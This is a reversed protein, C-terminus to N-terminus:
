IFMTLGRVVLRNLLPMLPHSQLAEAMATNEGRRSSRGDRVSM